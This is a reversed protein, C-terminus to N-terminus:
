VNFKNRNSYIQNIQRPAVSIRTINNHYCYKYQKTKSLSNWWKLEKSQKNNTMEIFKIKGLYM